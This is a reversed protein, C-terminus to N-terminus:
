VAPSARLPLPKMEQRYNPARMPTLRSSHSTPVYPTEPAATDSMAPLM